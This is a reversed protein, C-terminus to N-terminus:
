IEAFEYMEKCVADYEPTNMTNYAITMLINWTDDENFFADDCAYACKDNAQCGKGENCPCCWENCAQRVTSINNTDFKNKM